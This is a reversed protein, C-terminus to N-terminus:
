KSFAEWCNETIFTVDCYKCKFVTGEHWERPKQVASAKKKKQMAKKLAKLKAYPKGIIHSHSGEQPENTDRHQVKQGKKDAKRILQASASAKKKEQMAKMHVKLKASPKGM